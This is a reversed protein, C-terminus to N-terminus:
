QVRPYRRWSNHTPRDCFVQFLRPVHLLWTPRFCHRMNRTQEMRAHFLRPVHALRLSHTVKQKRQQSPAASAARRGSNGSSEYSEEEVIACMKPSSSSAAAHTLGASAVHRRTYSSAIMRGCLWREHSLLANLFTTMRMSPVSGLSIASANEGLQNAPTLTSCTGASTASGSSRSGRRRASASALSTAVMGDLMSLELTVTPGSSSPSSCSRSVAGHSAPKSEGLQQTPRYLACCDRAGSALRAPM